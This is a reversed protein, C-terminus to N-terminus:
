LLTPEELSKIKKDFKSMRGDFKPMESLIIFSSACWPTAAESASALTENCSFHDIKAIARLYYHYTM